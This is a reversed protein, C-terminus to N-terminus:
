WAMVYGVRGYWPQQYWLCLWVMGHNNSGDVGYWVMGCWSMGYRVVGYWEMGHGLLTQSRVKGGVTVSALKGVHKLPSRLRLKVGGVPGAAGVYSGAVRLVVSWGVLWGILRGSPLICM